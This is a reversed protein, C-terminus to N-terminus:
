RTVCHSAPVLTRTTYNFHTVLSTGVSNATFTTSRCLNPRPRNFWVNNRPTISRCWVNQRVSTVALRVTLYVFEGFVELGVKMVAGDIAIGTNNTGLILWQPKKVKSHPQSLISCGLLWRANTRAVNGKLFWTIVIKM